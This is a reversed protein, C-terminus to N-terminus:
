NRVFRNYTGKTIDVMLRSLDSGSNVYFVPMGWSELDRTMQTESGLQIHAYYNQEALKKIELKESNWNSVEGDSLSMMFSEKGALAKKLTEADIYTNKWDPNLLLKRISILDNYRGTKYRTNDSFLSVGHEIYPSIGQKQLFNEIGYYGILAWHYKSNDGWPIFITKGNSGNLGGKMSGSDDVVIMKFNPFSKRQIKQRYDVTLPQNPYALNFGREDFFFKSTKIKFPNDKESDFARYNLPSIEMSSERTIAEVKVSIDKALISYLSDLQEFSEINESQRKGSSYRGYAIEEKGEKTGTKKEIGNRNGNSDYASMKESPIEDLLDSIAHAYKEAMIAWQSKDFLPTTDPINKPLNLERIVENVVKGVKKNKTYHRKLLDEDTEDGFLHMNIKVFAEYLPTFGKKKKKKECTLGQEDWFLIQGSFDKNFEKCRPNIMTDEFMNAVYSLIEKKNEPLGKKVGELILDHNYTDFPCGKGSSLPLEWHAVEHLGGMHLVMTELGDSINKEKAYKKQEDDRIPEYGSKITIEIEWNEPNICATINQEADDFERVKARAGSILGMGNKQENLKKELQQIRNM